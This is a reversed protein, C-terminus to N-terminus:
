KIRISATLNSGRRYWRTTSGWAAHSSNFCGPAGAATELHALERGGQTSTWRARIGSLRVWSQGRKSASFAFCNGQSLQVTVLCFNEQQQVFISGAFLGSGATDRSSSRETNQFGSSRMAPDIERLEERTKPSRIKTYRVGQEPLQEIRIGLLFDLTSCVLLVSSASRESEV